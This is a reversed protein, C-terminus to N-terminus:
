GPTIHSRGRRLGRRIISSGNQREREPPPDALATWAALAALRYDEGWPPGLAAGLAKLRAALEPEGVALADGVLTPLDREAVRRVELGALGGGAAVVDRYFAGEAAHILAHARLIDELRAPIRAAGVPTVAIAVSFGDARLEAALRGIEGATKAEAAARVRAILAVAGARDAAAQHYVFRELGTAFVIRRRVVVRPGAPPGALAVAATWYTYPRFGLVAFSPESRM